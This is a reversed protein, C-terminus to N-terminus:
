KIPKNQEALNRYLKEIKEQFLGPSFLKVRELSNKSLHARLEPDSLLKKIHGALKTFDGRGYTLSTIDEVAIDKVGDSFCVVNPLGVAMAELLSLGFAEAHSPFLFIDFLSLLEPIDKRFGTFIFYEGLGYQSVKEKLGAEYQKENEQATGVIIVKIDPKDLSILRVAEIVDEHGKGPSIRGVMGIVTASSSIQFEKRLELSNDVKVFKDIDIFNNILAVKEEGLVTTDLLNQRIVESIAIACNLRNYIFNHLLDKKEIASGIHKTMVVPTKLGSLKLAPIILWLDKSFHTHVLDIKGNQLTKKFLLISKLSLPSSEFHVGSLPLSRSEKDIPSNEISALTVTHGEKLLLKISSIVFMEM